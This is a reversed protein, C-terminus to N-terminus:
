NGASYFLLDDADVDEDSDSKMDEDQIPLQIGAVEIDGVKVASVKYKVMLKLIKELDDIMKDGLFTTYIM